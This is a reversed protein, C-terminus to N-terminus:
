SQFTTYWSKAKKPKWTMFFNRSLSLLSPIMSIKFGETGFSKLKSSRQIKFAINKSNSFAISAIGIVDGSPFVKGPSNINSIKALASRLGPFFSTIESSRSLTIWNKVTALVDGYWRFPLPSCFNASRTLITNLLLWKVASWMSRTFFDYLTWILTSCGFGRPFPSAHLVGLTTALGPRTRDYQHKLGPKPLFVRIGM